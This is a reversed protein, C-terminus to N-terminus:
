FLGISALRRFWARVIRAGALLIALTSSPYDRRYARIARWTHVAGRLPDNQTVSGTHITYATSFLPLNMCNGTRCMRLWLVYDEGIALDADYGGCAIAQAKRFMMTSHIFPNSLLIRQRIALCSEPVHMQGLALGQLDVKKAFTGVAILRSDAQLVAVQLALKDPLIWYDDSDLVAVYEGASLELGANRNIAIDNQGLSHFRIRSDARSMPEILAQTNDTSGGDLVQIEWNTYSQQQVSAIARSLLEARNFSLINISVLPGSVRSTGLGSGSM